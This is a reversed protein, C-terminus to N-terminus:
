AAPDNKLAILHQVNGLSSAAMIAARLLGTRHLRELAEGSLDALAQQDIAYLDPLDYAQDDSIQIQMTIPQLLGSEALADYVAPATEVGEYLVRLVAAVHDLYPANGGHELFLPFGEQGVRPDDLDVHIKPDAVEGEQPRQVGISFPGRRSLAPVYRTTWGESNLFLNENSDLGLLVLARFGADDRRFVIPFERQAEEFESPFILMQNVSDGYPAGAHPMVRLDQHDINNLVVRNM